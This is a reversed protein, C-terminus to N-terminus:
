FGTNKIRMSKITQLIGNMLDIKPQWNLWLMAKDINPKRYKPEFEYRNKYTYGMNNDTLENVIEALQMISVPNPNGINIISHKWKNSEIIRSMCDIFDTIYCFSREQSGDGNIILPKKNLGWNIFNPIVRGYKTKEDMRPGYINFPRIIIYDINEVTSYHKVLEEGYLKGIFYPSRKHHLFLHSMDEENIGKKNLITHHGYIESSSFFIYRAKYNKALELLKLNGISNVNLVELPMQEYDTPNAISALNIIIDPPSIHPLPYLIDHKIFIMRDMGNLHSINEMRGTILNDVIIVKHGKEILADSLHSGIFGAGGAILITLM